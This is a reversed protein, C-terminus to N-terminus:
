GNIQGCLIAKSVRVGGSSMGMLEAWKCARPRAVQVLFSRIGFSSTSRWHTFATAPRPAAAAGIAFM